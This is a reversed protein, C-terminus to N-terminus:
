MLSCKGDSRSSGKVKGKRIKAEQKAAEIEAMEHARVKEAYAKPDRAEELLEQLVFITSPSHIFIMSQGFAWETMPVLDPWKNSIFGCLQQVAPMGGGQLQAQEGQHRAALMAFSRLFIEYPARYSYGAKKVKVNERLGQYTVQQEVRPFDIQMPAKYDNSKICRVYHTECQRLAQMLAGASQRIKTSSTTPMQTVRDEDAPWLQHVFPNTSVKLCDVLSNYLNDMNKFAMESVDYEVVGAFHQIAFGGSFNATPHQIRLYQSASTLGSSDLRELFKVDATRSDVAHLTRCTDDLVRFIGPPRSGEILDCIAQNDFFPIPKWPLGQQMYLQQEGKV